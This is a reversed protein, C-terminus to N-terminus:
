EPKSALGILQVLSKGSVERLKDEVLNAIITMTASDKLEVIEKTEAVLQLWKYHTPKLPLVLAKDPMNYGRDRYHLKREEFKNYAATLIVEKSEIEPPLDDHTDVKDIVLPPMYSRQKGRVVVTCDVHSDLKEFTDYIIYQYDIGDDYEVHEKFTLQGEPYILVQINGVKGRDNMYYRYSTDETIILTDGLLSMGNALPFVLFKKDALGCFNAIFM